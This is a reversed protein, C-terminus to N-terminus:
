IGIDEYWLTPNNKIFSQMMQITKQDNLVIIKVGREILLKENGQFNINEGIVVLPIKYLLIAGTCMDCPSLTTYLTCNQYITADKRGANEFCDMEGHKIVSSEQIRKNHGKGIIKNDHVLVAGIPIGNTKISIEAQLFAENYFNQQQETLNM